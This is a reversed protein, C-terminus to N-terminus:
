KVKQYTVITDQRGIFKQDKMLEDVAVKVDPWNPSGYDHFAVLGKLRLHPLWAKIDGACGDYSHDGDVFLYDIKIPWNLGVIKSDGWIKKVRHTYEDGCEMLRLHENTTIESGSALIDVSFVVLDGFEELMSITSTGAGAGINVAIMPRNTPHSLIIGMKIEKIENHTLYGQWDALEYSTRM